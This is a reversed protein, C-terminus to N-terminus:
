HEEGVDGGDELGEVGESSDGGEVCYLRSDGEMITKLRRIFFLRPPITRLRWLGFPKSSLM